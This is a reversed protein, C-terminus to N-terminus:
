IASQKPSGTAHTSAEAASRMGKKPFMILSFGYLLDYPCYQRSGYIKRGAAGAKYHNIRAPRM